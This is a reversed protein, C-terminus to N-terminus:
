MSPIFISDGIITYEKKVVSVKYDKKGEAVEIEAPVEVKISNSSVVETSEIELEMHNSWLCM